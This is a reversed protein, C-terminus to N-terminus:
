QAAPTPFKFYSTLDDIAPMNSPVYSGTAQAPNPLNDRSWKGITPLSWNKEIFKVVSAHDGYSHVVGVGKSYPSVVIMPIRTGDGFWDVTQIFGSDWYGGGEDVTIFVATDAALPSAQLAKLIKQTFAEFIDFKSSSPHGDNIGGPKVYSVAPLTGASIDAYLDLTDKLNNAVKAPNTMVYSQYLFPNCIACYVQEGVGSSFANWGEGYYTWSVQAKDLVNAISPQSVPPITFDTPGLPLPTGNGQYGPNYNNLLYYASHQCANFPTYSLHSAYDYIPKVGPQTLDSCNSYTGGGYGDNLYWNNTGPEPNPNEIQNVPPVGPTGNANAYWVDSAFGLYVSDAGTGGKIPQHYNDGVAYTDALQKFYPMDGEAVNYFGMSTAGEGTSMNTFGSPQASGNGGAGVTVEVWPFLDNQCGSPNAPTMAAASCDVQQFMQYFRHVPSAAYSDYTILPSQVSPQNSIQFPANAPTAANPIRTDVSDNPLGTAGTTIEFLSGPLLGSDITELEALTLTSPFPPSTLSQASPAGATMIPPFPDSGGQTYAVKPRPAISFASGTTASYQRALAVNPGPSGDANVIGKSLLNSVTGKPPTYTAFVHDFSRNEGVIVIVHKIPTTTNGDNPGTTAAMAAPAFANSAMALLSACALLRKRIAHNMRSGMDSSESPPSTATSENRPPPLNM